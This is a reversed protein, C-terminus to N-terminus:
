RHRHLFGCAVRWRRRAGVAVGAVGAIGAIGADAKKAGKDAKGAKVEVDKAMMTYTITVKEGVKMEGTVKTSSDRDVEWRDKGKMVVIMSDNMEVIPGTVQYTKASAASAASSLALSGAVVLSFLTNLKM